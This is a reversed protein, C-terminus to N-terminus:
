LEAEKDLTSPYRHPMEPYHGAMLVCRGLDNEFDCRQDFHIMEVVGPALEMSSATEFIYGREAEKGLTSTDIPKGESDYITAHFDEDLEVRAGEAARLHSSLPAMEMGGAPDLVYGGEAEDALADTDLEDAAQEVLAEAVRAAANSTVAEAM